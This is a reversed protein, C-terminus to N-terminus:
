ARVPNHASGAPALRPQRAPAVAPRLNAPGPDGVASFKKGFPIGRLHLFVQMTLWAQELASGSQSRTLGLEAIIADMDAAGGNFYRWELMTCESVTEIPPLGAREFQRNILMVGTAADHAVILDVGAFYESLAPAYAVFSDPHQTAKDDFLRALVRIPNGRRRPNFVLHLTAIDLPDTTLRVAGFRVIAGSGAGGSTEVNVFVIRRPLQSWACRPEVRAPRLAIRTEDWDDLNDDPDPTNEVNHPLRELTRASVRHLVSLAGTALKDFESLLYAVNV